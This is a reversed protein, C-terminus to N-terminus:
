PDQIAAGANNGGRVNLSGFRVPSFPGPNPEITLLLFALYSSLLCRQPRPRFLTDVTRAMFRRAHKRDAPLTQWATIVALHHGLTSCCHVIYKFFRLRGAAVEPLQKVKTLFVLYTLLYLLTYYLIISNLTGSSVNYNIGSSVKGAM